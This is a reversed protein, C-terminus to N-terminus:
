WNVIKEMVQKQEQATRRTYIRTTEISSHGMIDALLPLDREKDYFTKGFMHRFSHPYMVSPDISYRKGLTKLHKEVGKITMQKGNDPNVFVYGTRREISELWKLVASQFPKVFYIRRSKKGKGYFDIQGDVVNEVKIKLIESIRAGTCGMAWVLFYYTLDENKKLNRKLYLYDQMSIVNELYPKQQIKVSKLPKINRMNNWKIYKNLAQIRQNVTSPSFNDMLYGKYLLLNNNSVKKYASLFYNLTWTYSLITNESVDEKKLFRKFRKVEKEIDTNNEFVFENM